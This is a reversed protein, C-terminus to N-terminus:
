PALALAQAQPALQIERLKSYASFTRAVDNASMKQVVDQLRLALAQLTKADPTQGLQAFAEFVNAVDPPTMHEAVDQLRLGLAGLLQSGLGELLRVKANLVEKSGDGGAGSAAAEHVITWLTTYATIVGVVETAEMEPAKTEAQAVLAGLVSEGPMRGLVAAYPNTTADGSQIGVRMKWLKAYAALVLAVDEPSMDTAVSKIRHDLVELLPEEPLQELMGYANIVSSVNRSSMEPGVQILRAGVATFVTPALKEGLKGYADLVEALEKTGMDAAVEEVRQGLARLVAGGPREHLMAYSELVKTVDQAVMTKSVEAARKGLAALLTPGSSASPAGAPLPESTDLAALTAASLHCHIDNPYYGGEAALKRRASSDARDFVKAASRESLLRFTAEAPVGQKAMSRKTEMDDPRRPVKNAFYKITVKRRHGAAPVAVGQWAEMLKEKTVLTSNLYRLMQGRYDFCRGGLKVPYWFHSVESSPSVPPEVLGQVVADKYSDLEEQTLHKLKKVMLKTFVAEIAQEVDDAGLATGQVIATLYDVNSLYGYGAEVVYGLQRATRLENYTVVRLIRGLLGLLVQSEITSVGNLLTVVTVDNPDNERPNQM